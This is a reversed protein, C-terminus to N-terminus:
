KVPCAAPKDEGEEEEAIKELKAALDPHDTKLLAAAEKLVGANDQGHSEAEAPEAPESVAPAAMTTGGHEHMETGGHEGARVSLPLLAVGALVVGLAVIGPVGKM